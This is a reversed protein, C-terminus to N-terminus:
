SEEELLLRTLEETKRQTRRQGYLRVCFSTIIAVLDEVLESTSDTSQNIVVLEIGQVDCLVQLYNFGFRTLRDKHEVVIRLVEPDKLLKVLKPRSDNVGSGVEKIVSSVVWGRANCFDSVRQAQSELNTKRQESSSVRAYVVTKSRSSLPTGLASDQYDDPVFIAGRPTLQYAGPIRGEKYYRLVTKPHLGQKKAWEKLRM